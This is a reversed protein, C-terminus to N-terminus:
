LIIKVGDKLLFPTPQVEDDIHARLIDALQLLDIGTDENDLVM